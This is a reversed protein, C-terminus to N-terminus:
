RAGQVGDAPPRPRASPPRAGSSRIPTRASPSQILAVGTVPPASLWIGARGAPRSRRCIAKIVRGQAAGCSLSPLANLIQARCSSEFGDTTLKFWPFTQAAGRRRRLVRVQPPAMTAIAALDKTRLARTHRGAPTRSRGHAGPHRTGPRGRTDSRCEAAPPSPCACRVKRRGGFYLRHTAGDPALRGCGCAATGYRTGQTPCKSQRKLNFRPVTPCHPPPRVAPLRHPPMTTDAPAQVADRDEPRAAANWSARDCPSPAAGAPMDGVDPQKAETTTRHNTRAGDLRAGNETACRSAIEACIRVGCVVVREGDMAACRLRDGGKPM